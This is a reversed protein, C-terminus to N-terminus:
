KKTWLQQKIKKVEMSAWYCRWERVTLVDEQLEKTHLSVEPKVERDTAGQARLEWVVALLLLRALSKLKPAM